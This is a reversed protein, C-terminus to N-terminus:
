SREKHEDGETEHRSCVESGGLKRVLALVVCFCVFIDPVFSFIMLEIPLFPWEDPFFFKFSTSEAKEEWTLGSAFPQRSNEINLRESHYNQIM